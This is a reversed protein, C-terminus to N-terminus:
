SLFEIDVCAVSDINKIIMRLMNLLIIVSMMDFLMLSGLADNTVFFIYNSKRYLIFFNKPIRNCKNIVM